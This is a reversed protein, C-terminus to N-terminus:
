FRGVLNVPGPPVCEECEATFLTLNLWVRWSAPLCSITDGSIKVLNYKNKDLILFCICLFLLLVLTNAFQIKDAM